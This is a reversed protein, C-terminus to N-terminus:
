KTKTENNLYEDYSNKMQKASYDCGVNVIYNFSISTVLFGSLLNWVYEAVIDKVMLLNYLKTKISIEDNKDLKNFIKLNEMTKYFNDFSKIKEDETNGVRPIENILLSQNGYIHQLAKSIELDANNTTSDNTSDNNQLAKPTIIDDNFLNTLGGLNAAFYGITNSFPTLWGPFIILVINIVGFILLYPVITVILSTGWQPTGGCMANTTSLNIFYNGAILLLIYISLWIINTTGTSKTYDEPLTVLKLIFYITTIIFFFLISVNPNPVYSKDLGLSGDKNNVGFKSKAKNYETELKDM